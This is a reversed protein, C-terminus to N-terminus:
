DSSAGAGIIDGNIADVYIYLSTLPDNRDFLWIKWMTKGKYEKNQWEASWHYLRSIDDLGFILEGSYSDNESKESYFESKWSQYQYKAKQAEKEAIDTATKLSLIETKKNNINTYYKGDQVYYEVGDENNSTYFESVNTKDPGINFYMCNSNVVKSVIFINVSYEDLFKGLEYKINGINKKIDKIEYRSVTVIVTQKNFDVKQIEENTKFNLKTLISNYDDESYEIIKQYVGTVKTQQLNLNVEVKPLSNESNYNYQTDFDYKPLIDKTIDDIKKILKDKNALSTQIVQGSDSFRKIIGVEKEELMFVYNKSKRDYDFEIFSGKNQMQSIEDESYVKGDITNTIRNYLESYIQNYASANSKIITYENNKNKYIIRDPTPLITNEDVLGVNNKELKENSIENKFIFYIITFILILLLIYLIVRICNKLKLKDMNRM